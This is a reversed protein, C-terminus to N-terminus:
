IVFTTKFYVGLQFLGESIGESHMRLEIQFYFILTKDFKKTLM